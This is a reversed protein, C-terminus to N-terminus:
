PYMSELKNAIWVYPDGDRAKATGYPMEGTSLFYEFLDEYNQDDDLVDEGLAQARALQLVQDQTITRM